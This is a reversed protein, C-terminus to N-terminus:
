FTGWTAHNPLWQMWASDFQCNPPADLFMPAIEEDKFGAIGCGIRTVMFDLDDYLQAYAIFRKASESIESLFLREFDGDLTPIAYSVGQRGEGQGNVAGYNEAAVRAAGGNHKGALNSGFVFIM